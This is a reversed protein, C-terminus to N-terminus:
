EPRGTVVTVVKGNVRLQLDDDCPEGDVRITPEGHCLGPGSYEELVELVVPRGLTQGLM